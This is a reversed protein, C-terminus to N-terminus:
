LRLPSAWFPLSRRVGMSGLLGTPPAYRAPRPPTAFITHGLKLLLAYSPSLWATVLSPLGFRLADCRVHLSTTIQNPLLRIDLFPLFAAVTTLGHAAMALALSWQQDRLTVATDGVPRRYACFRSSLFTDNERAIPNYFGLQEIFRGDRSYRSDAVVISYFPRKKSGGRALRIIVM